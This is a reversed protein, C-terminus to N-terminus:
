SGPPFAPKEACDHELAKATKAGQAIASVISPFEPNAVDGIAYVGPIGTRGWADTELYGAKDMRLLPRWAAPLFDALFATNPAYGALIHLRDAEISQTTDGVHVRLSLANRTLALRTIRSHEHIVCAPDALIARLMQRQARIRSRAVLTVRAGADLLLRANECANDGGGLILVHRGAQAAIDLFAYPGAVLRGSAAVPAELVDGLIELGRHRTGTAIVLANCPIREGQALLVCAEGTAQPLLAVPRAELRIEVGKARAHSSFRHGLEQGTVDMHGLIWHNELFNLRTLGGPTAERELLLPHLGLGKLWLGASLGAPGAGLIVTRRVAINEEGLPQTQVSMSM